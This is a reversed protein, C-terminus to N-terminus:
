NYFAIQHVIKEISKFDRKEDTTLKKGQKEKELYIKGRDALADIMLKKEEETVMLQMLM